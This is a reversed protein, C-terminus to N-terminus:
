EFYEYLSAFFLSWLSGFIAYAFRGGESWKVPNFEVAIFASMLYIFLMMFLFVIIRKKM